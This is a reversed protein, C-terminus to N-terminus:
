YIKVKRDNEYIILEIYKDSNADCDNEKDQINKILSDENRQKIEIKM